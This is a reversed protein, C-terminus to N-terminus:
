GSNSLWVNATKRPRKTRYKIRERSTLEKWRNFYYILILQGGKTCIVNPRFDSCSLTSTSKSNSPGAWLTERRWPVIFSLLLPSKKMVFSPFRGSKMSPTGNSFPLLVLIFLLQVISTLMRNENYINRTMNLIIKM